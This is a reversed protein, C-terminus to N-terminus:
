KAESWRDVVKIDAKLPVRLKDGIGPGEMAERMIAVIEDSMHEPARVVLEDHVQLLIRAEPPLMRYLRVMALKILDAASGQVVTNFAQREAQSRFGMESSFLAPLYRRRGMMTTVYPPRGRKAEAVVQAKFRFVAAFQKEFESLLRKAENLKIGIKASATDPGVGYSLSLYLTKGAQRPLGFPEAIAAYFDHGEKYASMMIPDQSMSAIVRPEIQSYDAVILKHGEGAHFIGRLAKGNETDPRPVNQLNPERCSFRGTAAGIQNFDAHIKGDWIVPPQQKGAKMSGYLYAHCYTGHLRKVEGYALMADVVADRGEYHQLSEKDVSNAGGKTQKRPKLGRGGESKPTYLLEAIQPPSDINFEKGAARFIDTKCEVMRESLRNYLAHLEDMDILAGEAEMHCLVELVDMELKFLKDLKDRRLAKELKQWLLWTWKSDLYAYKAVDKFGHVEVEKGVGKVMKVGLERNLVSDLAYPRSYGVVPRHESNLLYAAVMTDAYPPEPFEGGYYKALSEVDFKVNHGVKLKDSFFLPELVTFVESPYLQAPAPTWVPTAKRIDQSYDMDRLPLGKAIRNQASPKLPYDYRVLEGHPHGMPIVDCRGRTALSIWLVRNRRPDGRHQGITEVDFAFSPEAMYYGLVEDLQKRTTVLM